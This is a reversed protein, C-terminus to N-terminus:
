YYLWRRWATLCFNEFLGAHTKNGFTWCYKFCACLLLLIILQEFLIILDSFHMLFPPYNNILRLFHNFIAFRYGSTTLRLLFSLAIILLFFWFLSMVCFVFSRVVHVRCLVFNSSQHGAITLLKLEMHSV